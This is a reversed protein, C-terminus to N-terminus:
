FPLVAAADQSPADSDHDGDIFVLSWPSHRASFVSEVLSPSGGAWLTYGKADSIANLVQEVDSSRQPDLFQPDICDLQLGASVLHAATWGFHSGIELGRKGKFQLAISHLYAAEEASANGTVPGSGRADNRWIHPISKRLYPWAVPWPSRAQAHPFFSLLDPCVLEDPVYDYREIEVKAQPETKVADFGLLWCLTNSHLRGMAARAM